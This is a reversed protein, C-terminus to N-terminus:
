PFHETMLKKFTCKILDLNEVMNQFVSVIRQAFDSQEEQERLLTRYEENVLNAYCRGAVMMSTNCGAEALQENVWDVNCWEELKREVAAYFPKRFARAWENTVRSYGNELSKRVRDTERVFQHLGRFNQEIQHRSVTFFYRTDRISHLVTEIM